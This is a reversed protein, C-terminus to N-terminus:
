SNSKFDEAIFKAVSDETNPGIIVDAIRKVGDVANSVAVAVTAEKMMSIDNNNDGFVVIRDAGALAALRKVALAKTSLAPFAEVEAFEEGYWDHYFMPNIGKIDHLKEFVKEGTATPQMGFFLVTHELPDPLRSDGSAPVDFTKFPSNIRENMFGREISNMKGIHYILMKARFAEEKAAPASDQPPPLTYVFASAGNRRYVDVVAAATASDMYQVHSYLGSQKDWFAGGTMVILPLTLNVEKMITSVTAPTRATAISFLAGRGIVENLIEVTADSLRSDADLLTGDLDSIYLTRSM